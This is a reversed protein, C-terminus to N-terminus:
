GRSPEAMETKAKHALELLHSQNALRQELHRMRERGATKVMIDGYAKDTWFRTMVGMKEKLIHIDEQSYREEFNMTFMRRKTSGGQSSHKISHNFLVVDGPVSELAFSPVTSGLNALKSTITPSSNDALFNHLDDSFIDGVIHSGPIVRLCGTEHTVHDLYFAIKISLYKRNSTGPEEPWRWDSHWKTDGVYFNGDSSSYNFDNGLLASVVNNIRHDDLLSSLYQNQDIFHSLASRRKKDHKRGAHGGGNLSWVKEFESIISDIENSFYGPFTLFGFTKFFYIQQSTLEM